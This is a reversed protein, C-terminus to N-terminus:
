DLSYFFNLGPLVAFLSIIAYDSISIFEISNIQDKIFNYIDIILPISSDLEEKVEEVKKSKLEPFISMLLPHHDLFEQFLKSIIKSAVGTDTKIDINVASALLLATIPPMEMEDLLSLVYDLNKELLDFKIDLSFGDFLHNIMPKHETCLKELDSAFQLKIEIKQEAATLLPISQRLAEGALEQSKSRIIPFRIFLSTNKSTVEIRLKQEEAGEPSMMAVLSEVGGAIKQMQLKAMAPDKCNVVIAGQTIKPIYKPFYAKKLENYEPGITLLKAIIQSRAKMEKNYGFHISNSFKNTENAKDAVKESAKTFISDKLKTSIIEAANLGFLIKGDGNKDMRNVILDATEKELEFGLEKAAQVLEDADIYGSDDKDLGAFVLYLQEYLKKAEDRFMEAIAEPVAVSVKPLEVTAVMVDPDHVLVKIPHSAYSDILPNLLELDSQETAYFCIASFYNNISSSILSKEASSASSATAFITIKTGGLQHIGTLEAVLERAVSRHKAIVLILLKIDKTEM